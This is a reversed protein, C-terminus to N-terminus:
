FGMRFGWDIVDHGDVFQTYHRSVAGEMPSFGNKLAAGHMLQVAIAFLQSALDVTRLDIIRAEDIVCVKQIAFAVTRVSKLAHETLM